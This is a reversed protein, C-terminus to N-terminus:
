CLICDKVSRFTLLSILIAVHSWLSQLLLESQEYGIQWEPQLDLHPAISVKVYVPQNIAPCEKIRMTRSHLHLPDLLLHLAALSGAVLIWHQTDATYHNIMWWWM